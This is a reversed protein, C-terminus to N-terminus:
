SGNSARMCWRAIVAPPRATIGQAPRKAFRPLLLWFSRRLGLMNPMSSVSLWLSLEDPNLRLKSPSSNPAIRRRLVSAVEISGRWYPGQSWMTKTHMLNKQLHEFAEFAWWWPNPRVLLTSTDTSAMALPRQRHANCNGSVPPWSTATSMRWHRM